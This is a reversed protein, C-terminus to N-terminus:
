DWTGLIMGQALPSALGSLWGPARPYSRIARGVHVRASRPGSHGSWLVFQIRGVGPWSVREGEDHLGKFPWAGQWLAKFYAIGIRRGENM